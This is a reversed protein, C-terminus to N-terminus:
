RDLHALINNLRNYIRLLDNRVENKFGAFESPRVPDNLSYAKISDM